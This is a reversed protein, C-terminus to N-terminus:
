VFPECIFTPFGFEALERKATDDITENVERHEGSIEYTNREIHKCFVWKGNSVAIIVAFKLPSDDVYYYFKVEM